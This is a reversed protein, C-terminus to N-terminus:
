VFSWEEIVDGQDKFRKLEKGTRLMVPDKKDTYLGQNTVYLCRDDDSGPQCTPDYGLRVKYSDRPIGPPGTTFIQTRLYDVGGEPEEIRLWAKNGPERVGIVVKTPDLKPRIQVWSLGVLGDPSAVSRLEFRQADDNPRCTALVIKNSVHTKGGRVKWCLTTGSDTSKGKIQVYSPSAPPLINLTFSSFYYEQAAKMVTVGLEIPGVLGEPVNLTLGDMTTKLSPETHTAGSVDVDCKAPRGIAAGTSELIQLASSSQESSFSGSLDMGAGQLTVLFGKFSDEDSEAFLTVALDEGALIDVVIDDDLVLNNLQVEYPGGQGSGLSGMNHGSHPAQQPFAPGDEDVVCTGAGGSFSEAVKYNTLAVVALFLRAANVRTAPLM